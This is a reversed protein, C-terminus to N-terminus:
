TTGEQVENKNRGLNGMPGKRFKAGSGWNWVGLMRM